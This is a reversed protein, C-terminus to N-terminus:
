RAGATPYRDGAVDDAAGVPWALAYLAEEASSLSPAADQGSSPWAQRYLADEAAAARREDAGRKATDVAALIQDNTADAPLGLRDTFDKRTVQARPQDATALLQRVAATSVPRGQPDTFRPAPM